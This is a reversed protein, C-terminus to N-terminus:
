NMTSKEQEDTMYIPKIEEIRKPFLGSNDDNKFYSIRYDFYDKVNAVKSMIDNYNEKEVPKRGDIMSLLNEIDYLINVFVTGTLLLIKHCHSSGFKMLKYGRQNQSAEEGVIKKTDNIDRIDRTLIQTRYNHAEDVILLSDKAVKPNRNYKEYTFFHYRNDNIDLGYQLMGSVFNFLLASPSIVIVKNKPYMKLYYYSSIVATLTKGSGVGHFVISGRLNSYIFQSIFKRQHEQPNLLEKKGEKNTYENLATLPNLYRNNKNLEELYLNQENEDYQNIGAKKYINVLGYPNTEIIKYKSLDIKNKLLLEDLEKTNKSKYAKIMKDPNRENFQEIINKLQYAKLGFISKYQNGRKMNKSLFTQLSEINNM